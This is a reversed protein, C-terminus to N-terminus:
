RSKFARVASNKAASNFFDNVGALAPRVVVCNRLVGTSVLTKPGDVAGLRGATSLAVSAAIYVHPVLCVNGGSRLKVKESYIM